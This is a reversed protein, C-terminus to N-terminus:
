PQSGDWEDGVPGTEPKSPDPESRGTPDISDLKEEQKRMIESHVTEILQKDTDHLQKLARYNEHILVLSELNKPHLCSRRATLVNGATSWVRESAVSTAQLCLFKRALRALVPYKRQGIDRWWKLPDGHIALIPEKLLYEELEAHPDPKKQETEMSGLGYIAILDEIRPAFRTPTSTSSEPSSMPVHKDDKVSKARAKGEKELRELDAKEKAEQAHREAEAKEHQMIRVEAGFQKGLEEWAPALFDDVPKKFRPDLLMAIIESKHTERFRANIAESLKQAVSKVPSDAPLANYVAAARAGCSRVLPGAHSATVYKTGQLVTTVDKCPRLLQVLAAVTELEASTLPVGKNGIFGRVVKDRRMKPVIIDLAAQNLHFSELMDFTSFLITLLALACSEFRNWRTVVDITLQLQKM